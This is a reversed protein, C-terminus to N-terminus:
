HVFITVITYIFLFNFFYSANPRIQYLFIHDKFTNKVENEQYYESKDLELYKKLPIPKINHTDKLKPIYPAVLSMNVLDETNIEEFFPNELIIQISQLRGSSAKNLCKNLLDILNKDKITNPINLDDNLISTYVDIPEEADEGFPVKGTVFEYLCISISWIDIIKTYGEGMIVEPAMYHPTGIVTSTREDIEKCTGFDILKIYGNDTVLINEPKIDRYILNRKHLYEVACLISASYFKAQFLNFIHLENLVEFLEKGKIYEM